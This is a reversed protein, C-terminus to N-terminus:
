RNFRGRGSRPGQRRIRTANNSRYEGPRVEPDAISNIQYEPQRSNNFLANFEGMKRRTLGGETKAKQVARLYTNALRQQVLENKQDIAIVHNYLWDMSHCFYQVLYAAPKNSRITAPLDLVNMAINYFTPGAEKFHTRWFARRAPGSLLCYPVTAAPVDDDTWVNNIQTGPRERFPEMM